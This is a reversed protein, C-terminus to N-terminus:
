GTVTFTTSEGSNDALVVRSEDWASWVYVEVTYTGTADSDGIRYGTGITQTGSPSVPQDVFGLYVPTSDKLVQVILIYDTAAEFATYAYSYPLNSYYNTAHEIDISITVLSGRAFSSTETGASNQTTLSDIHLPKTYSDATFALLAQIYTVSVVSVIAIIAIISVIKKPDLNITIEPDSITSMSHLEKSM